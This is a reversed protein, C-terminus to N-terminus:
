RLKLTKKAVTANGAADKGAVSVFLKLSKAKRLRKAAKKTFRVHVKKKGAAALKFTKGGIKIQKKAAINLTKAAKRDMLLSVSLTCAESCSLNLGVGKKIANALRQGHLGALHLTPAVRDAVVVPAPTVHVPVSATRSQGSPLAGTLTLTYDGPAASAPVAVNVPESGTSDAAPNLSSEAPTVTAGPIDSQATMAFPSAPTAGAMQWGFPVAASSGAQVTQPVPATLAFDSTDLSKLAPLVTPTAGGITGWSWCSGAEAVCDVARDAPAGTTVSRFGNITLWKFPGKFPAGDSGRPLSFPAAVTETVAPQSAVPIDINGSVYGVWKYGDAAPRVAQLSDAYSQTRAYHLLRPTTADTASSLAEPPEVGAPIQYAVLSQYTTATGFSVSGSCLGGSYGGFECIKATLVAPGIGDQQAGTDSYLDDSCGSLAAVAILAAAAAPLRLKM